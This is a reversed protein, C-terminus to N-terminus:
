ILFFSFSIGPMHCYYCYSCTDQSHHSFIPNIITPDITTTTEDMFYGTCAPHWQSQVVTIANSVHIAVPSPGSPPVNFFTAGPLQHIAQSVEEITLGFFDIGNMQSDFVFTPIHQRIQLLVEIWASSCSRRVVDIGEESYVHFSPETGNDIIESYYPIYIQPNQISPFFRYSKFGVPWIM